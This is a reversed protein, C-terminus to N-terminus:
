LEPDKKLALISRVDGTEWAAAVSVIFGSWAAIQDPSAFKYAGALALGSIVIRALRHNTNTM